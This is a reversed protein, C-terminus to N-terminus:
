QKVSSPMSLKGGIGIISLGISSNQCDSLRTWYDLGIIQTPDSLKDIKPFFHAMSPGINFTKYM